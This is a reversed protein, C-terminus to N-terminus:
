PDSPVHITSRRGIIQLASWYDAIASGLLELPHFVNDPMLFIDHQCDGNQELSWEAREGYAFNMQRRDLVDDFEPPPITGGLALVDRRDLRIDYARNCHKAFNGDSLLIKYCPHRWTCVLQVPLAIAARKILPYTALEDVFPFPQKYRQETREDIQSQDHLDVINRNVTQNNTNM